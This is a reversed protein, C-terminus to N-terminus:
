RRRRVLGLLGLALLGRWPAPTRPASSCACGLGDLPTSLGPPLGPSNASFAPVEDPIAGGDGEDGGEVGSDPEGLGSDLGSDGAEAAVVEVAFVLADSGPGGGIPADEFWTVWEEVLGLSLTSSGTVSTDIPVRLTVSEGPATDPLAQVRTPSLWADTAQPFAVDRPLPALHTNATWPEIGDNRLTVVLEGPEGQVLRLVGDEGIDASVLSGQYHATASRLEELRPLVEDGPCATSNGPWEGHGKLTDTTTTTAEQSALTQALLRAAAMMQLTETVALSGCDDADYCGLFCIAINGDNQGGGTAGSTYTLPRGEWLSGDFGVLFQYPIDCYTGSGMAYAQLAQVAGLVTGGSTQGGATHHIAFRYWDDETSTCTTASAGWDERSVVGIDSLATSVAAAPPPDESRAENVPVLLEWSLASLGGRVRLRAAPVHAPLDAVWVEQGDEGRWTRRAPLWPGLAVEGFGLAQVEIEVDKAGEVLAGMRTGGGVEWRVPSVRWDGERAWSRDLVEATVRDTPLVHGEGARAPAVLACLLPLLAIM